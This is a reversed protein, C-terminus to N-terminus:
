DRVAVTLKALMRKVLEIARQLEVLKAPVALQLTAALRCQFELECASGMAIQLFSGFQKESSRGCGESINSGISVAARRMQSVLGQREAPPFGRTLAYTLEAVRLAADVVHLRGPDRM